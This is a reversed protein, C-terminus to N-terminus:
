FARLATAVPMSFTLMLNVAPNLKHPDAGVDEVLRELAALRTLVGQLKKELAEV